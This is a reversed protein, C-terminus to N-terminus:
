KRTIEINKLNTDKQNQVQRFAKLTELAGKSFFGEESADALFLIGGGRKQIRSVLRYLATSRQYLIKNDLPRIDRYLPLICMWPQSLKKIHPSSPVTFYTAFNGEFSSELNGGTLSIQLAPNIAKLASILNQSDTKTWWSVWLGEIFLLDPQYDKVLETLQAKVYQFYSEKSGENLETHLKAPYGTGDKRIQKQSPHHWDIISYNFGVPIRKRRFAETILALWDSKTQTYSSINYPTLSTKWFCFGDYNKAPLLVFDLPYAAIVEDVMKNLTTSDTKLNLTAVATEYSEREIATLYPFLAGRNLYFGEYDGHFLIHPSLELRVGVSDKDIWSSSTNLAQLSFSSFFFLALFHIFFVRKM